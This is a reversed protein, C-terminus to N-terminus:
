PRVEKNFLLLVAKTHTSIIDYLLGLNVANIFNEYRKNFEKKRIDIDETKFINRITIIADINTKM